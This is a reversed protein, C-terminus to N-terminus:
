EDLESTDILDEIEDDTEQSSFEFDKKILEDFRDELPQMVRETFLERTDIAEGLHEVIYKRLHLPLNAVQENQYDFFTKKQPKPDIITKDFNFGCYTLGSVSTGASYNCPGLPFGYDLSASSFQHRFDAFLHHGERKQPM